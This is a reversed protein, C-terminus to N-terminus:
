KVNFKNVTKPSKLQLGILCVDDLFGQGDAWNLASQHVEAQTDEISKDRCKEFVEVLKESGWDEGEANPMEYIGDTYLMIKELSDLPYEVTHYEADPFFGLAPDKELKAVTNTNEGGLLNEKFQLLPAEHGASSIAAVGKDYDLLVYCASAFMTVSTKMLVTTLSRNLEDMYTAPDLAFPLAQEMLGKILSVILASRIGHGMVDIILFGIRNEDIHIIDYYDGALETAPIYLHEIDLRAKWQNIREKWDSSNEPLIAFQIERALILEEEFKHNMEQLALALSELKKQATVMQTVDCSIGFTGLLVDESNYWPYKMKKVYTPPKDPWEERQIVGILPKGTEMIEIEERHSDEWSVSSFYDQATKGMLNRPSSEGVWEAQRQNVLVYEFEKNKFYVQLPVNDIVLRLRNREESVQLEANKRKTIEIMSGAMRVAVGEERVVIGRVRLWYVAGDPKIFRCDAAFYEEDPDSLILSLINSFYSVDEKYLLEEPHLMLNPVEKGELGFFQYVRDSYYIETAGVSWDWIGENSAKLTLELNEPDFLDM